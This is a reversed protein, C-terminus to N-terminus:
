GVDNALIAFLTGPATQATWGGARIYVATIQNDDNTMEYAGWNNDVQRMAVSKPFDPTTAWGLLQQPTLTPGGVFSCEQASPLRIWLQDTDSTTTCVLNDPLVLTLMGVSITTTNLSFADPESSPAPTPTPVPDPPPDPEPTVSVTIPPAEITSAGPANFSLAYDGAPGTITLGFIVEGEAGTTQATTGSLTGLSGPPLSATVVVGAMPIGPTGGDRQTVRVIPPEELATGSEAFPSPRAVLILRPVADIRITNTTITQADPASFSIQYDGAPGTITLPFAANGDAATTASAIVGGPGGSPASTIAATITLGAKPAAPTVSTDTATIFIGATPEGSTGTTPPTGVFDLTITTSAHAPHAFVVFVLLMSLLARVIHGVNLQESM